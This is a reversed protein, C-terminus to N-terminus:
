TDNKHEISFFLQNTMQTSLFKEKDKDNFLEASVNMGRRLDIVNQRLIVDIQSRKLNWVKTCIRLYRFDIQLTVCSSSKEGEVFAFSLIKM